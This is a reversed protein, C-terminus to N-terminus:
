ALCLILMYGILIGYGWGCEGRWMIAVFLAHFTLLGRHLSMLLALFLTNLGPIHCEGPPLPTLVRDISFDLSTANGQRHLTHSGWRYRIIWPIHCGGHRYRHSFGISLSIWPHSMGKATCPTLVGGIAFLGHSTVNGMATTSSFWGNAYLGLIHYERPPPPSIRSFRSM